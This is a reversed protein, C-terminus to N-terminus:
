GAGDLCRRWLGPLGRCSLGAACPPWRFHHYYTVVGHVEARSLNLAQAIVPVTDHPVHGRREQVAHLVPLLAGPQHAWDSLLKHLWTDQM